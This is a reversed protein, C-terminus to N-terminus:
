VTSLGIIGRIIYENWRRFQKFDKKKFEKLEKIERYSMGVDRCRKYKKILEINQVRQM